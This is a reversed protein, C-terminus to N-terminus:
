QPARQQSLGTRDSGNVARSPAVANAPGDSPIIGAFVPDPCACDPAGCAKCRAISQSLCGRDIAERWAGPYSDADIM